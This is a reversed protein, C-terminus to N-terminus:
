FINQLRFSEKEPIHSVYQKLTSAEALAMSLEESEIFIAMKSLAEDINDIEAHDLLMAWSKRVSDWDKKINSLQKAAKDWDGARISDEISTIQDQLKKSSFDLSKKAYFSFGLVVSILILLFIIIKATNALRM